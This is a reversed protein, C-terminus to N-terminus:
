FEQKRSIREKGAVGGAAKEASRVCKDNFRKDKLTM